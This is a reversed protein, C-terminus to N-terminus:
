QQQLYPHESQKVVVPELTELARSFAPDNAIPLEQGLMSQVPVSAYEAVVQVQLQDPKYPCIICHSVGLAEGLSDVTQQWITNLDLTHRINRAIQTLLKKSQVIAVRAADEQGSVPKDLSTELRRGMVLVTTANGKAALIPSIILDFEFFKKGYRFLCRCREPVLSELIRQVRELYRETEVCFTEALAGAVQENILGQCEAEQWYFSLYRGAGDQTYVLEAGLTSLSCSKSTGFSELDNSVSPLPPNGNISM